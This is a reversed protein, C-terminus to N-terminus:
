RGYTLSMMIAITTIGISLFRRVSLSTFETKTAEPAKTTGGGRIHVIAQVTVDTFTINMGNNNARTQLAAVLKTTNM